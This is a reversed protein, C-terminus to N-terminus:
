RNNWIDSITDRSYGFKSAASGIASDTSGGKSIIEIIYAIIKLIDVISINAM